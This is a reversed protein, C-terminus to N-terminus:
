MLILGVEHPGLPQAVRYNYLYYHLQGDGIGFKLDNLFEANQLLDLANFVDYGKSRAIIMADGILQKLPTAGPVTYYMYAARLETHEPHGLITSPLTYFSVLDTIKGAEDEVVYANIVLELNQFWHLVEPEDFLQAVRFRELYSNLLQTVQPVDRHEIARIRPTLPTDPLKYLKITRAMTMRPALRSFGVDILKKPNLSRHWYRATAFPKPILTGATYAAQWIDLRNVRRTIEKILVPALRKARLKKHVCLFNIEVMRVVKGNVRVHAPIASIFGVLKRSKVVRVGVLWDLVYGPPQLAWRLFAASYCFRFMNDDDEVYNNSLLEYVEHVAADDTLDCTCWEFSEPLTYPEAKVEDVTKPKDIPGDELQQTAENFQVVPQTEWFQYHEKARKKYDPIDYTTAPQESTTLSSSTAQEDDSGGTSRTPRGSM